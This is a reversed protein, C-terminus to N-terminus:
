TLALSAAQSLGDEPTHRIRNKYFAIEQELQGTIDTKDPPSFPYDYPTTNFLPKLQHFTTAIIFIGIGWLIQRRRQLFRLNLPVLM